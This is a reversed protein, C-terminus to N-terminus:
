SADGNCPVTITAITGGGERRQVDASGNLLLARERIGVLGLSRPALIEADSIGRGDDEVRITLVDDEIRLEVCVTTAGSHRAANTLLEQVIRFVGTEIANGLRRDGLTGKLSTRIGSRDQLEGLSTAIAAELGLQDLAAPRLEESIRQVTRITREALEAMGDARAILPKVDETDLAKMRRQLWGVDMRLATLLQGLEDHIERAIRVAEEERVTQVKASLARLQENTAVIRQQAQRERERLEREETVDETVGLLRLPAGDAARQFHGHVSLWRTAGDPRIIRFLPAYPAGSLAAGIQREVGERDDPHITQAFMEFSGDFSGPRLGFIRENVADWVVKGTPVDWDWVGLDAAALALTLRDRVRAAALNAARLEAFLQANVIAAACRDAVAELVHLDISSEEHPKRWDVHLVGILRDRMRLPVGLMSHIGQEALFTGVVEPDNKVDAVYLPEGTAFIRGGFGSRAPISPPAGEPLQFGAIARVELRGSRELLIAGADARTVLLLRELLTHILSDVDLTSVTSDTVALLAALDENMRAAEGLLSREPRPLRSELQAAALAALDELAIKQDVTLTRPKRDVVCLTGVAFGGGLRIPVGAYFRLHPDDTVIPLDQFRPDELADPVIFPEKGLIAYTCLSVDRPLETIEVGIRAKFWDRDTDLFAILAIPTDCIRSAIAALTDFVPEAPTDLVGLQRLTSLRGAEDPPVSAPM